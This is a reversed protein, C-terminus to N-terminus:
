SHLNQLLSYELTGSPQLYRKEFYNWIEKASSHNELSMRLSPVVSLILTEMVKADVKKWSKVTAEDAKADLDDILHDGYDAANIMTKVSFAWERYNSGELQIDINLSVKAM